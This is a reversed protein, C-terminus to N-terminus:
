QGRKVLWADIQAVEREQDAIVKTALARSEADKGNALLVQAMDIAALHHTRMQKNFDVDADGTYPPMGQMMRSMSQKYGKTAASDNPQATLMATHDMPEPHANAETHEHPKAEDIISGDPRTNAAIEATTTNIPNADATRADNQAPQSCGAVILLAVPVLYANKM